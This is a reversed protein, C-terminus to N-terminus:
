LLIAILIAILLIIVLDQNSLAGGAPMADIRQALAHVEADTLSAVRDGAVLGAVGMAQLREKVDAREMFSQVRARDLEAQSQAGLGETEVIEARALPAQTSLTLALLTAVLRSSSLGTRKM